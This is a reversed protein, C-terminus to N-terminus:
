KNCVLDRSYFRKMYNNCMDIIYNPVINYAYPNLQFIYTNEIHFEENLYEELVKDGSLNFVKLIIRFIETKEYNNETEYYLKRMFESDRINEVIESYDFNKIFSRINTETKIFDIDEFDHETNGEKIIPKKYGKLLSSVMNYELSYNDDLELYRRFHILRNIINISENEYNKKTVNIISDIDNRCITKEDLEGNINELYFSTVNEDNKVKVMNIIPELDHTLMLVTKGKLSNKRKFLYYTIAYKKNFDFSSVPDDLIILDPKEYLCDFLFLSLSFANKEGCSLHKTADVVDNSTKYLLVIRDNDVDVRYTMGTIEMFYNIENLNYTVKNKIKSNLIKIDRNLNEIKLELENIKVNLKQVIELIELGCVYEYEKINIINEKLIEDLDKIDKLNNYNLQTFFLLKDCIKNIEQIIKALIKKNDDTIAKESKLVKDIFKNSEDSLLKSISNFINTANVIKEVNKEDFLSNVKEIYIQFKDELDKMCFPCKNDIINNMGEKHWKHWNLKNNSNLYPSFESIENPINAIKNGINLVKGLSISKISDKKSLKLLKDLENRRNLLNNIADNKNIYDEVINLIENIKKIQTDYDDPKIFVEFSNIHLNEGNPLFLYQSVYDDNYTKVSKFQECGSIEPVISEDSDFPKLDDLSENKIKKIIAKSITSKGTGNTGYKINLKNKVIDIKGEKINNCNKILIEM